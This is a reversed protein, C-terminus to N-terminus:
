VAIDESDEAEDDRARRADDDIRNRDELQQHAAYLAKQTAVYSERDIDTFQEGKGGVKATGVVTASTVRHTYTAAVAEAQRRALDETVALEVEHTIVASGAYEHFARDDAATWAEPTQMQTSNHAESQMVENM